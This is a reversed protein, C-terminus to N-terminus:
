KSQDSQHLHMQKLSALLIKPLIILFLITHVDLRRLSSTSAIKLKIKDVSKIDLITTDAGVM